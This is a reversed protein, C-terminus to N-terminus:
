TLWVEPLVLALHADYRLGRVGMRAVDHEPSQMMILVWSQDLYYDNLQSYLSRQKVSDTESALNTSWNTM